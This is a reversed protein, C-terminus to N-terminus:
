KLAFPPLSLFTEHAAYEAYGREFDYSGPEFKRKAPSSGSPWTESAAHVRVHWVTAPGACGISLVSRLGGPWGDVDVGPGKWAVRRYMEGAAEAAVAVAAAAEGVPGAAAQVVQCRCAPASPRRRPPGYAAPAPGVLVGM